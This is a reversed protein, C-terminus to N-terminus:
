RSNHGPDASRKRKWPTRNSGISAWLGTHMSHPMNSSQMLSACPTSATSTDATGKKVAAMKNRRM